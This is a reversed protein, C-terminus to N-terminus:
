FGASGVFGATIFLYIGPAFPCNLTSPHIQIHMRLFPDPGFKTVAAISEYTVILHLFGTTHPIYGLLIPCRPTATTSKIGFM